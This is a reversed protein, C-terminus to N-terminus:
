HGEHETSSPAAAGAKEVKFTVVVSGAHEFNLTGAFSEGERLPHKLDIFMLHSSGPELAIEGGAPIPVGDTLPRMQMVGNAMTVDHIETRGAIDSTASVLRDPADGTNKLTLYGAAVSAGGPTARSWPREIEIAGAKFEHAVAAGLPLLFTAFVFATLPFGRSM